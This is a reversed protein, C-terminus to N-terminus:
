QVNATGVMTPHIICHYGFSGATNMRIPTSTGGPGINGTNFSGDNAAVNHTTSDVNHWSVTKGVPITGPNPSFSLADNMGAINITVDAAVVPTTPATPSSMKCAFGTFAVAALILVGATLNLRSLM